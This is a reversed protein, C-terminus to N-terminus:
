ISSYPRYEIIKAATSTGVGPLTELESQPALNISILGNSQQNSPVSYREEKSKIFIKEEDNLKKALNIEKSIYETDANDTFGGAIEILESVRMGDYIEYMGPNIVEGSIYAYMKFIANSTPEKKFVLKGNEQLSYHMSLITAAVLSITLFVLLICKFGKIIRAM